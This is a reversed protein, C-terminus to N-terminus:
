REGSAERGAGRLRLDLGLEVEERALVVGVMGAAAGGDQGGAAGPDFLQIDRAEPRSRISSPKKAPAKLRTSSIEQALTAVSRRERAAVRRRSIATRSESPAGRTRRTRISTM